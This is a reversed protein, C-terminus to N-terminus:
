LSRVANMSRHVWPAPWFQEFKRTIESHGGYVSTLYSDLTNFGDVQWGNPTQNVTLGFQTPLHASGGGPLSGEVRVIFLNQRGFWFSRDVKIIHLKIGPPFLRSGEQSLFQAVREKSPPLVHGPIYPSGNPKLTTPSQDFLQYLTTWDQQQVAAIFRNAAHDPTPGYNIYVYRGIWILLLLAILGILSRSKNINRFNWRVPQPKRRPQM